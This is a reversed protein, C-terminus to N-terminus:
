QCDHGDYAESITLADYIFERMNRADVTRRGNLHTTHHRQTAQSENRTIASALQPTLFLKNRPFIGVEVDQVSPHKSDPTMNPKVVSKPSGNKGSVALTRCVPTADVAKGVLVIAPASLRWIIKIEPPNELAINTQVLKRSQTAIKPLSNDVSNLDCM